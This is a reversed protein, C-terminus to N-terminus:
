LPAAIKDQYHKLGTQLFRNSPNQTHSSAQDTFSGFKRWLKVIQFASQKGIHKELTDDNNQLRPQRVHVLM